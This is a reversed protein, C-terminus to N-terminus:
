SRKDFSPADRAANVQRLLHFLRLEALFAAGAPVRPQRAVKPKRRCKFEIKYYAAWHYVFPPTRGIAAAVAPRSMGAAALARIQRIESMAAPRGPM